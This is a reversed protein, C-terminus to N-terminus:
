TCNELKTIMDLIFRQTWENEVKVKMILFLGSVFQLDEKENKISKSINKQKVEDEAMMNYKRKKKSAFDTLDNILMEDQVGHKKM